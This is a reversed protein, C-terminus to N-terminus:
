PGGKRCGHMAEGVTCANYNGPGQLKGKKVATQFRLSGGQGFYIQLLHLAAPAHCQEGGQVQLAHLCVGKGGDVQVGQQIGGVGVVWGGSGGGRSSPNEVCGTKWPFKTKQVALIRIGAASPV